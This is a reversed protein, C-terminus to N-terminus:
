GPRGLRLYRAAAWRSSLSAPAGHCRTQGRDHFSSGAVPVFSWGYGTPRLTLDLVGFTTTNRVQSHPRVHAIQYHQAGGTGVVFERVGTARDLTGAPTMPAFREYLHDHGNLIVDAGGRWLARWFPAVLRVSPDAGHPGSSFRPHHFYALTCAARHIALDHRLWALQASGSGCGILDCNSNLAILHWAGLNYSYWGRRGPGARSGFYGFYGRATRTAEYEHNGPVPRTIWREAGWSLAYSRRFKRLSGDDYQEDGLPLVADPGLRALVAATAAARCAAGIGRGHNFAPNAPDCAIDGAAAVTATTSPRSSREIPRARAPASASATSVVAVAVTAAAFSRLVRRLM